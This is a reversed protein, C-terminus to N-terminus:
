KRISATSLFRISPPLVFFISTGQRNISQLSITCSSLVFFLPRQIWGSPSVLGSLSEGRRQSRMTCSPIHQQWQPQHNQDLTSCFTGENRIFVYIRSVRSNHKTYTCRRRIMFNRFDPIFIKM